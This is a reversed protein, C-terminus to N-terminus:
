PIFLVQLLAKKVRDEDSIALPTNRSFVDSSVRTPRARYDCLTLTSGEYHIICYGGRCGKCLKQTNAICDLCNSGCEWCSRAIKRTKLKPPQFVALEHDVLGDTEDVIHVHQAASEDRGPVQYCSECWWQDCHPKGCNKPGFSAPRSASKVNSSHLPVPSLLPLDESPSEGYVTLGEPATGCSACGGLAFTAVGWPHDAASTGPSVPTKGYAASNLHHPGRCLVADFRLVERCDLLTEAWGQAIHKSVLRGKHCYWDDGENQISESMAPQSKPNGNANVHIRGGAEVCKIPSTAPPLPTDRKGFVYLGQLRPTGEPRTPRCAYRLSQMLKRENLNKVERISLIRVRLSPDVLIDNCFEATVSLGDLVLTQVDQLINRRRINHFIARLPGSYFDDETLNEDLQVNRWVQGGHDIGDVDFQATKVRTLDLHRYAGPTYQLLDRFSRSASALNLVTSIPLHPITQHFILTTSLLSFLTPTPESTDTLHRAHQQVEDGSAM